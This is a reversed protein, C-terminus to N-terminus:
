RAKSLGLAALIAFQGANLSDLGDSKGFPNFGIARIKREKTYRTSFSCDVSQYEKGYYGPYFVDPYSLYRRGSQGPHQVQATAEVVTIDHYMTFGYLQVLNDAATDSLAEAMQGVDSFWDSLWSWPLAAWLRGPTPTLGFLAARAGANWQWSATDPIWYRYAASYWVKTYTTTTLTYSTRGADGFVNGPAGRVNVYALNSDAGSQSTTMDEHLNARRRVIHGNQAKLKSIAADVNKMAKYLDQLDKVFPKWGFVVNLYESGLTRYDKLLGRIAGPLDKLALFTPLGYKNKRSFILKRLPLSPLGDSYLEKGAVFLDVLARGPKTKNYGRLAYSMALDAVSGYTPHAWVTAATAEPTGIVGLITYSDDFSGDALKWKLEGSNKVSEKHVYLPGGGSWRGNPLRYHSESALLGQFDIDYVYTPASDLGNKRPTVTYQVRPVQSM